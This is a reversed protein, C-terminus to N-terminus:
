GSAAALVLFSITTSRSLRKVTEVAGLGFGPYLGVAAYSLPFLCFLPLLGVYLSAPQQLFGRAWALYGLTASILLATVDCSFLVANRVVVHVLRWQGLRQQHRAFAEQVGGLTTPAALSEYRSM